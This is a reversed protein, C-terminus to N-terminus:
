DQICVTRGPYARGIMEAALEKDCCGFEDSIGWLIIRDGDFEAYAGGLAYARASPFGLDLLEAQVNRLIERHWDDGSRLCLTGEFGGGRVLVLVIKGRYGEPLDLEAVMRGPDPGHALLRRLALARRARRRGEGIEGRARLSHAEREWERAMAEVAIRDMAGPNARLEAVAEELRMDRILHLLAAETGM